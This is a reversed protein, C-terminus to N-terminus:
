PSAAPRVAALVAEAVRECASVELQPYLPLSLTSAALAEAVPFAGPAWRDRYPPTQHPLQPYHVLTGIGREALAGAVADRDSHNIAFLHWVPDAWAPPAPMSISEQEAFAETYLAALSARRQNWEYLHPLLLRLVAAQIEALRSNVGASEIEYRNRMGYNRLLRVREALEDDDTTVAGGDGLCGLNKTPYFSFAGADGISGVRCGQCRAGHAQAADEIVLLDAEAAIAAVAKMEAPEGRLHVPVIAATRENIAPAILDPDINYTEAVADVPVPTAGTRSVALWTAIWTYAPVIVEDGPGIGAALLALEIASMGSAVGVCHRTGCYAAFEREFEELEPGLLYWGSAAVRAVTRELEGDLERPVASLDLYPIPESM